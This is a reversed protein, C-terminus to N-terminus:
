STARTVAGSIPWTVSVKELDGIKGSLPKYDTVLVSFTWSPNTSSTVGAVALVAVTTTTGVLPSLTQDVASGAFDQQIEATFKHDGLGAIRTKATSGFATTDVDAFSEEISVQDFWASLNVSNIVVQPNILVTKAM